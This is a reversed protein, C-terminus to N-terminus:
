VIAAVRSHRLDCPPPLRSSAVRTTSDGSAARRLQPIPRSEMWAAGASEERPVEIGAVVCLSEILSRVTQKDWDLDVVPEEWLKNNTHIAVLLKAWLGQVTTAPSKM